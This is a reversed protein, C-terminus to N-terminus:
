RTDVLNRREPSPARQYIDLAWVLVERRTVRVLGAAQLVANMDQPQHVFARFASPRLRRIFNELAITARVYWRDRPYTFALLQRTRSATARLLAQANPYCCVVRDLTVVDADDLSNAILTFDGLLFQSPRSAFHPGVVQRAVDLYSPSAEVHTTSSLGNAALEVSIIGIGGGVDLLQKGQLSLHRLETLLVRTIGQAGKRRYRRLDGDAVKRDIHEEAATYRGCCNV